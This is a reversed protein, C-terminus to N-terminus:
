VIGGGGGGGNLVGGRVSLAAEGCKEVAALGQAQIHAGFRTKLASMGNPIRLVLNYM